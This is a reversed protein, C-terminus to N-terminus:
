ASSQKLVGPNDSLSADDTFWSNEIGNPDLFVLQVRNQWEQLPLSQALRHTRRFYRVFAQDLIHEESFTLFLRASKRLKTSTVGADGSNNSFYEGIWFTIPAGNSLAVSL